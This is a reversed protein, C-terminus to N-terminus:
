LTQMFPVSMEQLTPTAKKELLPALLDIFKDVEKYAMARINELNVHSDSVLPKLLACGM